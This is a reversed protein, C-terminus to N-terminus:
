IKGKKNKIHNQMQEHVIDSIEVTKRKNPYIVDLVDFWVETKRFPFNKHINQTGWVTTVVIPCDTKTAIKFCGPKFGQLSEGDGRHGEPFVGISTVNDLVLKQAKKITVAANRPNERDIAMYCNAKILRRGIPIKFNSPKSIYAIKHKSLVASQIMNDFRSLHNSVLLFPQDKPIKDIGSVFLKVGANSVLYKYGLNLVFHHFKSPKQYEKNQTATLSAIIIFLWFLLHLAVLSALFAVPLIWLQWLSTIKSCITIVVAICISLYIFIRKLNM